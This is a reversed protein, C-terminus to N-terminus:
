QKLFELVVYCITFATRNSGTTINVNVADVNIEINNVLVPSAYPIPIYNLGVPDSACAYIRTFSYTTTPNINHPVSKLGTNALIGFDIAKRFVPRLQTQNNSLPNFFLQGTNFEQNIYYGTDKTNIVLSMVNLYQYVRALLEKFEPSNVDAAYLMSIDLMQTTPLFSGTNQLQNVPFAM